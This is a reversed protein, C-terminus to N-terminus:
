VNRECSSDAMGNDAFRRFNRTSHKTQPKVHIAVLTPMPVTGGSNNAAVRNM